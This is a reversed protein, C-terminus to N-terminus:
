NCREGLLKVSQTRLKNEFILPLYSVAHLWEEVALWDVAWKMTYLGVYGYISDKDHKIQAAESVVNHADPTTQSIAPPQSRQQYAEPGAPSPCAAHMVAAAQGPDSQDQHHHPTYETLRRYVVNIGSCCLLTYISLTLANPM